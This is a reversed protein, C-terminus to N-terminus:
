SAEHWFGTKHVIRAVIFGIISGTISAALFATMFASLTGLSGILGAQLAWPGILYASAMAGIIGTGIIEFFAAYDQKMVYRYVLGVLLAGFIGGPFAFVTGTHLINRILGAIVAILVAYWPGLLIGAIANVASQVPFPTAFGLPFSVLPSLAVATAALVAALAVKRTTVAKEKRLTM